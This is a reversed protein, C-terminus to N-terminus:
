SAIPPVARDQEPRRRLLTPIGILAPPALLVIPVIATVAPIVAVRMGGDRLDHGGRRDGVDVM